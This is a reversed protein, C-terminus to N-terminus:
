IPLAFSLARPPLTQSNKPTAPPPSSRAPQFRTTELLDSIVLQGLHGSAGTVLYM